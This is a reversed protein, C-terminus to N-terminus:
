RRRGATAPPTARASAAILLGATPLVFIGILFTVTGALGALGLAGSLIWAVITAWRSPPLTVLLLGVIIAILLPIATLALVTYGHVAVLSRM